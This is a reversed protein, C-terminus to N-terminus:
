RRPVLAGGPVFSARGWVADCTKSTKIVSNAADIKLLLLLGGSTHWRPSLALGLCIFEGAHSQKLHPPTPHTLLLPPLDIRKVGQCLLVSVVLTGKESSLLCRTLCVCLQSLRASLPTPHPPPPAVLHILFFEIRMDPENYKWCRLWYDCVGAQREGGERETEREGRILSYYFCQSIWKELDYKKFRRAGNTQSFFIGGATPRQWGRCSEQLEGATQMGLCPPWPRKSRQWISISTPKRGYNSRQTQM